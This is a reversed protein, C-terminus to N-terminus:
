LDKGQHLLFIDTHSYHVTCHTKDRHLLTLENLGHQGSKENKVSLEAHFTLREKQELCETTQNCGHLVVDEEWPVASPVATKLEFGSLKPKLFPVCLSALFLPFFYWLISHLLCSRTQLPQSSVARCLCKRFDCIKKSGRQMNGSPGSTNEHVGSTLCYTMYNFVWVLLM